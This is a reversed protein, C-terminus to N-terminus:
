QVSRVVAHAKEKESDSGKGNRGGERRDVKTEEGEGRPGRVWRLQNSGCRFVM